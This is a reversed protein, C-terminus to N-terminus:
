NLADMEYQICSVAVLAATETRFIRKGLTTSKAGAEILLEVESVELGGEPGILIAVKQLLSKGQELYAKMAQADEKEYLVMFLDYNLVRKCVDKLNLVGELTPIVDRKSQKAAEKVIKQYRELKKPIDKAKFDVVCRKSDVLYFANVGLEVNKQLILELKQGKPICQFLDVRISSENEHPKVSEINLTISRDSILNVLGIILRDKAVLEIPEGLKVRLVKVLHAHTDENRLVVSDSLIEDEDEIFFRHM